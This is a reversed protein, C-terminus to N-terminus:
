VQVINNKFYQIFLWFYQLVYKNNEFDTPFAVYIVIFFLLSSDSTFRLSVYLCSICLAITVIAHTNM